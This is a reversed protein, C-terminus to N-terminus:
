LSANVALTFDIGHHGCQRLSSWPPVCQGWLGCGTTSPHIGSVRWNAGWGGGGGGGGGGTESPGGKRGGWRLPPMCASIQRLKLLPLHLNARQRYWCTQSPQM